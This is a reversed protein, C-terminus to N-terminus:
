MFRQSTHPYASRRAITAMVTTPNNKRAGKHTKGRSQYAARACIGIQFCGRPEKSIPIPITNLMANPNTNREIIIIYALVFPTPLQDAFGPLPEERLLRAGYM